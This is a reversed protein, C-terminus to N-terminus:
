GCTARAASLIEDHNFEVEEEEEEGGGSWSKCDRSGSGFARCAIAEARYAVRRPEINRGDPFSSCFASVLSM